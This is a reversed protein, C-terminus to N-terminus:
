GYGHNFIQHYVVNKTTTQGEPLLITLQHQQRVRSLAVYLQGHAFVDDLLCLGVRTFTQGQSKNITMAFALKIPFQIRSLVFPFKTNTPALKIRPILVEEGIVDGTLVKCKIAHNLLETVILRTGNCLGKSKNLNRLLVVVSGLSLKLEHPPLGNFSLSNLFEM